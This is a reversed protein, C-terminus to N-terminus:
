EWPCDYCFPFPSLSNYSFHLNLTLRSPYHDCHVLGADLAVWVGGNAAFAGEFPRKLLYNAGVGRAELEEEKM